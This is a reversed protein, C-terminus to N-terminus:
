RGLPATAKPKRTVLRAKANAPRVNITFEIGLGNAVRMLTEMSPNVDGRELRAVQPQEMGLLNALDRQSLERTARHRIVAVAVARALATREWEARFEPDSRLQEAILEDNTKMDTLKM